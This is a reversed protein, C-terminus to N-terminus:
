ENPAGERGLWFCHSRFQDNPDEYFTEANPPGLDNTVCWYHSVFFYYSGRM